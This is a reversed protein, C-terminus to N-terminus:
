QGSYPLRNSRDYFGVPQGLLTAPGLSSGTAQNLGTPYPNSLTNLPTIGDLSTVMNTSAQFGAIGFSGSGTGVGWFSAFFIGGGARLVTKPTLRYAVGVRPGFNARDPNANQRPLKVGVFTLVGRLNLNPVQIPPTANFDFNTLQNFRDTRPSEYEWRVGANLTLKETVKFSDQVYAAHYITQQALAPAPIVGATGPYGLLFSAFGFGAVSSAASPNPGQTFGSTFNFNPTNAGTQQNNFRVVRFDYGAKLIHRSLSKTFQAQAAHTDNGVPHPRNRWASRRCSHQRDVRSGMALSASSRFRRHIYRPRLRRRFDSSPSTSRESFPRRVNGLRTISYRFTGLLTPTFTETDEVMGNQRAFIQPGTGPSAPNDL